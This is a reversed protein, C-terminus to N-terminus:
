EKLISQIEDLLWKDSVYGKSNYLMTIKELKELAISLENYIKEYSLYEKM